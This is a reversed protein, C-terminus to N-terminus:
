RRPSSGSPFRAANQRAGIVTVGSYRMADLPM